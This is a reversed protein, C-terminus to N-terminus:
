PRILKGSWPHVCQAHETRPEARPSTPVPAGGDWLLPELGPQWAVVGEPHPQLRPVHAQGGMQLPQTGLHAGSRWDFCLVANEGHTNAAGFFVREGVVRPWRRQAYWRRDTLETRELTSSSWIWRHLASDTLWMLTDGEPAWCFSFSVDSTVARQSALVEGTSVDVVFVTQKCSVALLAGDPSHAM